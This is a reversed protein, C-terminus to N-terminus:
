RGGPAAEQVRAGRLLNRWGTTARTAPTSTCRAPSAACPSPRPGRARTPTPPRERHLPARHHRRGRPYLAGGPDPRRERRSLLQVLQHLYRRPLEHDRRRPHRGGMPRPLRGDLPPHPRRRAPRRRPPHHAARPDDGASMVVYEPTQLVLFHNNYGGPRKPAGRTVCREAMTRGTWDDSDRTWGARTEGAATRPPLRGDPPDIVLSTRALATGREWWFDNYTGPDGPPPPRDNRGVNAADIAAVEEDTYVAQDAVNDPRELPTTTSNTWLGQLDPQGDSTRPPTWGDQAFATGPAALAAALVAVLSFRRGVM